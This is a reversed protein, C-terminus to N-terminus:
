LKTIVTAASRLEQVYQETYRELQGRMLKEKLQDKLEDFPKAQLAKREEVMIVHWGFKTRVPDSIGGVPLAFAAREFEAVM